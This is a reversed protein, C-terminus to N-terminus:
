LKGVCGRRKNLAALRDDAPGMILCPFRNDLRSLAISYGLVLPHSIPSLRKQSLGTEGQFLCDFIWYEVLFKWCEDSEKSYETNATPRKPEATTCGPKQLGAETARWPTARNAAFMLRGLSMRRRLPKSPCATQGGAPYELRFASPTAAGSHPAGLCRYQRRCSKYPVPKQLRAATRRAPAAGQSRPRGPRM